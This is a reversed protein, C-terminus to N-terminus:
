KQHISIACYFELHFACSASYLYLFFPLYSLAPCMNHDNSFRKIKCGNKTMGFPRNPSVQFIDSDRKPSRHSSPKPLLSSLKPPLSQPFDARAVENIPVASDEDSSNVSKAVSPSFSVLFTGTIHFGCLLSARLQM